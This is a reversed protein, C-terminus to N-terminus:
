FLFLSCRWQIRCIRSLIPRLNWSLSVIKIKQVLNTWFPCKWDLVFFFSCWQQIKWVRILRPVLNWSLNAIKIKKVLSAWFPYNWDLVYFTVMVVSNQKNFNTESPVLNWTWNVVKIKKVLSAWFLFKWNFVSFDWKHTWGHDNSVLNFKEALPGASM